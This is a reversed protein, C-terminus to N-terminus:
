RDVHAVPFGLAKKKLGETKLESHKIACCPLRSPKLDLLSYWENHKQRQVMMNRCKSVCPFRRQCDEVKLEWPGRPRVRGHYQEQTKDCPDRAADPNEVCLSPKLKPGFRLFM